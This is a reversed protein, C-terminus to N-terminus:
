KSGETDKVMTSCRSMTHHTMLDIGYPQAIEWELWHEVVPTVFAKHHAIRETFHGVYFIGQQQDSLIALTTIAAPNRESHDDAM